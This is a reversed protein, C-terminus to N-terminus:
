GGMWGDWGMGEGRGVGNGGGTRGHTWRMM